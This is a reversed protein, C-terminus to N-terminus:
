RQENFFHQIDQSTALDVRAPFRNAGPVKVAIQDHDPAPRAAQDAGVNRSDDLGPHCQDLRVLHAAVAQVIATHRGFREDLAGPQGMLHSVARGIAQTVCRGHEAEFCDHLPNLGHDPRNLGMVAHRAVGLQTDLNQLAVGFDDVGPGNFDREVVTLFLDQSGAANHNGGTGPRKHRRQGPQIVHAIDGAVRQPLHKGPQVGHRLTQDHQSASRNAAFQSLTELAQAGADRLDLHRGAQQHAFVFFHGCHGTIGQHVIAHLHQGRVLRHPALANPSFFYQNYLVQADFPTNRKVLQNAGHPPHCSEGAIPQFCQANGRLACDLGVLVQM